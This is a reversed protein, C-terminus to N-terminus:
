YVMENEAERIMKVQQESSINLQVVVMDSTDIRDDHLEAHCEDCLIACKNIEKFFKSYSYRINAVRYKKKKPDIHHFTLFDTTGCNSCGQEKVNAKIVRLNKKVKKRHKVTKSKRVEPDEIEWFNTM